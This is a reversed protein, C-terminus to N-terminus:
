DDNLGPTITWFRPDNSHRELFVYDRGYLKVELERRQRYYLMADDQFSKVEGRLRKTTWLYEAVVIAATLWGVIAILWIVDGCLGQM